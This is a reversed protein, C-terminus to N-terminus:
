LVEPVVGANAVLARDRKCTADREHQRLQVALIEVIGEVGAVADQEAAAPVDLRAVVALLRM